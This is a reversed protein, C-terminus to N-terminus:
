DRKQLNTIQHVERHQYKCDGVRFLRCDLNPPPNWVVGSHMSLETGGSKGDCALCHSCYVTNMKSADSQCQVVMHM